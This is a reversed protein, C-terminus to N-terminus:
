YTAKLMASTYSHLLRSVEALDKRLNTSDGYGLDHALLLQYGCESISGEAINYFRAKDASKKRKFGEAINSTISIAARRLQPVLVFTEERPFKKTYRYVNLVFGHAKQWVTLDEFSQSKVSEAM